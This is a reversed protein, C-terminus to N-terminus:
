SVYPLAAFGRGRESLACACVQELGVLRRDVKKQKKEDEQGEVGKEGGAGKGKGAAAARKEEASGPPSPSPPLPLKYELRTEAAVCGEALGAGALLVVEKGGSEAKWRFLRLLLARQQTPRSVWHDGLRPPHPATTSSSPGGDSADQHIIPLLDPVFRRTCASVM